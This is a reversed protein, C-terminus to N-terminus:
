YPTFSAAHGILVPHPVRRTRNTRLPPPALSREEGADGGADDAPPAVAPRPRRKKRIGLVAGGGGGGGGGGSGSGGTALGLARLMEQNKRLKAAREAEYDGEGDEGGRLRLSDSGRRRASRAQPRPAPCPLRLLLPDGAAAPVGRPSARAVLGAAVLLLVLPRRWGARGGGAPACGCGWDGDQASARGARRPAAPPARTGARECADAGRAAAGVAAGDSGGAREPRWGRRAPPMEGSCTAPARAVGRERVPRARASSPAARPAAATREQDAAWVAKRKVSGPFSGGAPGEPLASLTARSGEWNPLNAAQSGLGGGGAGRV